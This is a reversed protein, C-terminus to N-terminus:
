KGNWDKRLAGLTKDSRARRKGGPLTLRVAEAPLDLISAVWAEVRGVQFDSRPRRLRLNKYNTYPPPEGEEQEKASM